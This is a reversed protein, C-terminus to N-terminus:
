REVEVERSGVWVWAQFREAVWKTWAAYTWTAPMYNTSAGYTWTAPMFVTAIPRWSEQQRAYGFCATMRHTLRTNINM